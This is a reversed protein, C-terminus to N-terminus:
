RQLADDLLPFYPIVDPLGVIHAAQLLNDAMASMRIWGGYAAVKRRARLLANIGSSDMFTVDTFDVVYRPHPARPDFVGELAPATTFDLVGDPALVTIGGAAQRVAVHLPADGM